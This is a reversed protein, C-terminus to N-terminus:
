VKTHHSSRSSPQASRAESLHTPTARRIIWQKVDELGEDTKASVFILQTKKANETLASMVKSPKLDRRKEGNVTDMKTAVILYPIESIERNKMINQLYNKSKELATTDMDNIDFVFIIGSFGVILSEATEETLMAPPFEWLFVFTNDWVATSQQETETPETDGFFGTCFNKIIASKGKGKEGIVAIRFEQIKGAIM